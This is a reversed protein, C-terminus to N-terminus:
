MTVSTLATLDVNIVTLINVASAVTHTHIRRDDASTGWDALARYRRATITSIAAINNTSFVHSFTQKMNQM